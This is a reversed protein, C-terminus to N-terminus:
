KTQEREVGNVTCVCYDWDIRQMDHRVVEAHVVQKDDDFAVGQLADMFVKLVNDVDPKKMAPVCELKKAASKPLKPFIDLRISVPGRHKKGTYRSRIYREEEKTKADVYAKGSKTFRPRRKTPIGKVYFQM